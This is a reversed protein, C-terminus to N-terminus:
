YKVGDYRALNASAESPAIIYYVPLATAAAPLRVDRDISAGQQEFVAIAQEMSERIGPDLGEGMFEAPIGIRLGDVGRDFRETYDPVPEDATTSDMPDVGAIVSLLHAADEADRGFPGVQELSSAFAVVGSRSVRGYTPKVGVVGCLAAP